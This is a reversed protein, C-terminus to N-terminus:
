TKWLDEWNNRLERLLRFSVFHQDGHMTYVVVPSDISVVLLLHVVAEALAFSPSCSTCSIVQVGRLSCTCTLHDVRSRASNPFLPATSGRMVKNLRCRPFRGTSVVSDKFTNRGLCEVVRCVGSEDKGVSFTHLHLRGRYVVELTVWRPARPGSLLLLSVVLLRSMHRNMWGKIKITCRPRIPSSPRLDSRRAKRCPQHILPLKEAEM